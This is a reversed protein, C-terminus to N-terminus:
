FAEDFDPEPAEPTETAPPAFLGHEVGWDLAKAWLFNLQDTDDWVTAGKYTVQKLKPLEPTDKTYKPTIKVLSHEPGQYLTWGSAFSGSKEKKEIRWPAFMIPVKPDINHVCSLFQNAYRSSLPVTIVYERGNDTLEIMFEKGYASNTSDAITFFKLNGSFRNHYIETVEKGQKNVRNVSGPTGKPVRVAFNGNFIRIYQKPTHQSFGM